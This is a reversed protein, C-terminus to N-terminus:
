CRARRSDRRSQQDPRSQRAFIDHWHNANGYFKKAIKSLNDGSVVTYSQAAAPATSTVGSKCMASIPNRRRLRQRRRVAKCMPFIPNVRIQTM